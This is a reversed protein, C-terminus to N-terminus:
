YSHNRLWFDYAGKYSGYRGRVYDHQWKLNAVPDTWHGYVSQKGCPYSQALGCASVPNANCDSRGPNYACPNWGSERGVIFDVYGWESEPIGAAQMWETKNGGGTYRLHETKVGIVEVQKKPQTIIVSQIEERSVEKGNKMVIEYTVSRKGLVGPTRTEKFGVERDADQIQEVPFDVDEEETITQKGERWIEVKMGSSISTKPSISLTDDEGLTIDKEQLLGAVTSAQTYADIQKGYLVLNVPTARTIVLEMGASVGIALKMDTLDEDRLQIDAHEAIQRPTRYASMIKKRVSGDVVTIPRARYINIDYSSAVLEGDLRPEVLDNGDLVIEADEIAQRVTTAKTLIGKKLGGDHIVVIREGSDPVETDAWVDQSTAIIASVLGLVLLAGSLLQIRRSIRRM